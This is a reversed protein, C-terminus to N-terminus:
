NKRSKQPDKARAAVMRKLMYNRFGDEEDTVWPSLQRISAPDLVVQNGKFRLRGEVAFSAVAAHGHDGGQYLEPVVDRDFSVLQGCEFETFYIGSGHGGAVDIIGGSWSIELGQWFHRNSPMGCISNPPAACSGTATLLLLAAVRGM